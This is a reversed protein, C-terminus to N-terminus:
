DEFVFDDNWHSQYITQRFQFAERGGEMLDTIHKIVNRSDLDGSTDITTSKNNTSRLIHIQESDGLVPINPNHTAIIIQRKLKIASLTNVIIQRLLRNDLNDEPQDLILPSNSLMIIIPLMASCKQGPSMNTLTSSIVSNGNSMDKLTVSPMDHFRSEHLKLVTDITLKSPKTNTFVLLGNKLKDYNETDDVIHEIAPMDIREYCAASQIIEIASKEDIGGTVAAYRTDIIINRMDMNGHLFMEVIEEINRNANIKFINRARNLTYKKGSLMIIQQLNEVHNEAEFNEDLHISIDFMDTNISESLTTNLNSIIENRAIRKSEFADKYQKYLSKREELLNDYDDVLDFYERLQKEATLLAERKKNRSLTGKPLGNEELTKNEIALSKEITSNIGNLKEINLNLGNIFTQYVSNLEQFESDNSYVYDHIDKFITNNASDERALHDIIDKKTKDFENQFNIKFDNLQQNLFTLLDSTAIKASTLKDIKKYTQIMEDTNVQNFAKKRICYNSLPTDNSTLDNIAKAKNVIKTRNEILKTRYSNEEQSFELMTQPKVNDILERLNHPESQKEIENLRYVSIKPLHSKEINIKNKDEYCTIFDHNFKPDFYRKTAMKGNTIDKLEPHRFLKWNINVNNGSLTYTARQYYDRDKMTSLYDDNNCAFSLAEILSSKGSGRGGIICNLNQSFSITNSTSDSTHWFKMGEADDHDITISEIWYRTQDPKQYRYRTEGYRLAKNTLDKFFDSSKTTTNLNQIKIHPINENCLFILDVKHADSCQITISRGYKERFRHLFRYHKRDQFRSVQLADFGCKGIERLVELSIADANNRQINLTEIEDNLKSIKKEKKVEKLNSATISDIEMNIKSIQADIDSLIAEKTENSLGKTSSIHAAVCIVSGAKNNRLNHIFKHFSDLQIPSGYEWHIGEPTSTRIINSIKEADAEPEFLCLIHVRCEKGKLDFRVELEIGPLIILNHEDKNDWAFKSLYTAFRYLNHDTIGIIGWQQPQASELSEYVKNKRDVLIKYWDEYLKNEILKREREVNDKCSEIEEPLTIVDQYKFDVSAVSHVHLDIPYYKAHKSKSKAM